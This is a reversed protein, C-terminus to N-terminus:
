KQAKIAVAFRHNILCYGHNTIKVVLDFKGVALDKVAPKGGKKAELKFGLIEPDKVSSPKAYYDVIVSKRGYCDAFDTKDKYVKVESVDKTEYKFTKYLVPIRDDDKLQNVREGGTLDINDGEDSTKLDEGGLYRVKEAPNRSSYDDISGCGVLL